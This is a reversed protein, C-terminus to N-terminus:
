SLYKIMIKYREQVSSWAYQKQNKGFTIYYNYIDECRNNATFAAVFTQFINKLSSSIMTKSMKNHNCDIFYAISTFDRISPKGRNYSTEGITLFWISIQEKAYKATQMEQLLGTHYVVSKVFETLEQEEEPTINLEIEEFSMVYKMLNSNADAARYKKNKTHYKQSILQHVSIINAIVTYLEFRDNCSKGLLAKFNEETALMIERLLDVFSNNLANIKEQWNLQSGGQIVQFYDRVTKENWYEGTLTRVAINTCEFDDREKPTLDEFKKDVGDIKVMLNGNLFEFIAHLRNKGDVCVNKSSMAPKWLVVPNIPYGKLISLILDKKMKDNWVVKRQWVPELDLERRSAMKNLHTVPYEKAHYKEM